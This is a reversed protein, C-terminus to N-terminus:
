SRVSYILHQNNSCCGTYILLTSNYLLICTSYNSYNHHRHVFQLQICIEQNYWTSVCAKNVCVLCYQQIDLM